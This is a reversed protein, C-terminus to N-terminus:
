WLMSTSNRSADESAFMIRGVVDMVGVLMTSVQM